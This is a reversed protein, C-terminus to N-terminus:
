SAFRELSFQHLRAVLEQRIKRYEDGSIAQRQFRDDLDSIAKVLTRREGGPVGGPSANARRSRGVGISYVVLSAMALAMVIPVGIKVFLGNSFSNKWRELLSPQPLGKLRMNLSAGHALDAVSGRQYVVDSVTVPIVEDFSPSELEALDQPVLVYFVGGGFPFSRTLDLIDRQYPARYTYVLSHEGPPIPTTLGFGTDVQVISGGTLESQVDLELAGLPLGFRMIDMEGAQALDPVVTRDGLNSVQVVEFFGVTQEAPDVDVVILLGSNQYLQDAHTTHEFVQLQVWDSEPPSPLFVRYSAGRYVTTVAYLLSQDRIVSEFRFQGKSDTLTSFTQEVGSELGLYLTVELETPVGAGPTGNVVQGQLLMTEQAVAILPLLCVIASTLLGLLLIRRLELPHKMSECFGVPSMKCLDHPKRITM